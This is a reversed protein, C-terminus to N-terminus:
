NSGGALNVVKVRLGDSLAYGGSTIVWQGASVGSIIQVRGKERIGVKVATRRAAGDPDITFLYWANNRADQFLAEAPVSIADPVYSSVIHVTVPAGAITIRDNGTFDLRAPATEGGVNFTPSLAMVRAPFQVGPRVPSTVTATMGPRVLASADVPVQAQVYISAPDILEALPDLYAVTQGSSVLPQSVLATSTARIPVGPGQTYRDVSAKLAPAEAPDIKQAIALGNQAAELEHSVIYGVVQGQRVQDGSSLDFGVVRGGSPARLTVHRLATTIGLLDTIARMSVVEARAATVALVPPPTSEDDPPPTARCGSSLASAIALACLLGAFRPLCFKV